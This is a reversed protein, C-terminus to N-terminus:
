KPKVWQGSMQGSSSSLSAFIMSRTLAREVSLMDAERKRGEPGAVERCGRRGMKMDQSGARSM